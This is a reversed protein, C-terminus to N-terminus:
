RQHSSSAAIGAMFQALVVERVVGGQTASVSAQKHMAKTTEHKNTAQDDTTPIAMDSDRTDGKAEEPVGSELSFACITLASLPEYPAMLREDDSGARM